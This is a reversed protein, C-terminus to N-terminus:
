VPKGQAISRLRLEVKIWVALSACRQENAEEKRYSDAM